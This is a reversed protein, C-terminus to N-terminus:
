WKQSRQRGSRFNIQDLCAFVTLVASRSLCGFTYLLLCLRKERARAADSIALSFGGSITTIFGALWTAAFTRKRWKAGNELAWCKSSYRIYDAGFWLSTQSLSYNHMWSFLGSWNLHQLTPSPFMSALNPSFRTDGVGLFVRSTLIAKSLINWDEGVCGPLNSFCLTDIAASGTSATFSVVYVFLM